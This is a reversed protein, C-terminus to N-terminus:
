DIPIDEIPEFGPVELNIADVDDPVSYLSWYTVSENPGITEVLQESYEGSCLCAQEGDMVPHFRTGSGQSVATVGSFNPGDYLYSYKNLWSLVVSEGGESRITWTVSLLNGDKNQEASNVEAVLNDSRGENGNSTGLTDLERPAASATATAAFVVAAVVAIIITPHKSHM